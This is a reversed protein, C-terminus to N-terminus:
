RRRTRKNKPKPEIVDITLGYYDKGVITIDGKKIEKHFFSRNVYQHLDRLTTERDCPLRQIKSGTLFQILVCKPATNSEEPDTFSSVLYHIGEIIVLDGNNLYMKKTDGLEGNITLNNALKM